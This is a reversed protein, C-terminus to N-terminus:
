PSVKCPYLDALWTWSSSSGPNGGCFRADIAAFLRLEYLAVAPVEDRLLALIDAEVGRKLIEAVREQMSYGPGFVQQVNKKNLRFPFMALEYEGTVGRHRLENLAVLEVETLIQLERLQHRIVRAAAVATSDEDLVLLSLRRPVQAQVTPPASGWLPKACAITGCIVQAIAKRDLSAAITRRVQVDQLKESQSNFVLTMTTDAPLDITRISKIGDFQSRHIQAAGPVVDIDHALLRRWEQGANVAVIEIVDIARSAKARLRILGKQKSELRYPGLAFAGPGFDIMAQAAKEDRFEAHILGKELTTRTLGEFQLASALQKPTVEQSPLPRLIVVNETREVTTTYRTSPVYVLEM